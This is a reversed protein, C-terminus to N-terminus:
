RVEFGMLTYLNALVGLIVRKGEDTSVEVLQSQPKGQVIAQSIRLLM